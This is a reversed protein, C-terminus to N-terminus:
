LTWVKNRPNKEDEFKLLTHVTASQVISFLHPIPKRFPAVFKFGLFHISGNIVEYEVCVCNKLRLARVWFKAMFDCFKDQSDATQQKKHLFKKRISLGSYHNSM